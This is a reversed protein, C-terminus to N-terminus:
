NGARPYNMVPRRKAPGKQEFQRRADSYAERANRLKGAADTVKSKVFDRQFLEILAASVALDLDCGTTESLALTMTTFDGYARRGQIFVPYQFWKKQSGNHFQIATPNAGQRDFLFDYDTRPIETLEMSFAPFIGNAVSTGGMEAYALSPMKFATDWKTDLIVRTHSPFLVTHGGWYIDDSAGEGQYRVDMFKHGATIIESRKMWQWAAQSHEVTTGVAAIGGTTAGTAIVLEANTGAALRSLAYVIAQEQGTVSYRQYHYGGAGSNVSRGSGVSQFVNESNATTIKTLATQSLTYQATSNSQYGADALVTGAPKASLPETNETYNKLLADNIADVLWQPHLGDKLLYVDLDAVDSWARDPVLTSLAHDGEKVYRVQDAQTAVGPIFILQDSKQNNGWNGNGLWLNSILALSTRSDVQAAPMYDGLGGRSVMKQFIEAGTPM